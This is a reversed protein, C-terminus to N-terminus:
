KVASPPRRHHTAQEYAYAFKIMNADDYPRGLFSIGAPLNDSTFGAPVTIAPVYVLFTNIHPVGKSSVYPPNTGQSILTPQHEVSKHVIADLRNDAMVKLLNIMLEDSVLGGARMTDQVLFGLPSAAQIASRLMDGTSIKPIGHRACFRDAQTGKGAGPAGFLVVNLPLAGM